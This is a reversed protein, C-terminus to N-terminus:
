LYKDNHYIGSQQAHLAPSSGISKEDEGAIHVPAKGMMNLLNPCLLWLKQRSSFIFCLLRRSARMFLSQHVAVQRIKYKTQNQPKIASIKNPWVTDGPGPVATNGPSSISLVSAVIDEREVGHPVLSLHLGDQARSGLVDGYEPVRHVVELRKVIINM